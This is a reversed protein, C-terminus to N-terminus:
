RHREFLTGFADGNGSRAEAVLLYDEGAGAQVITTGENELDKTAGATHQGNMTEGAKRFDAGQWASGHSIVATARNRGKKRLQTVAFALTAISRSSFHDM